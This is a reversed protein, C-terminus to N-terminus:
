VVPQAEDVRYNVLYPASVLRSSEPPGRLLGGGSSIAALSESLGVLELGVREAAAPDDTAIYRAIETL